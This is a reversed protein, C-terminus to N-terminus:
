LLSISHFFPNSNRQRQKKHHAEASDAHVGRLIVFGGFCIFGLLIGNEIGRHHGRFDPFLGDAATTLRGGGALGRVRHRNILVVAHKGHDSGGTRLQGQRHGEASVADRLVYILLQFDVHVQVAVDAGGHFVVAIVADM